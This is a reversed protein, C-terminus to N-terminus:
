VDKYFRKELEKTPIMCSKKKGYLKYRNQSILIYFYDRLKKPLFRFVRLLYWFGSLEKIIELVADSKAFYKGDKILILTDKTCMQINYKQLLKQTSEKQYPTFIFHSNPDRKIIFNIAKNCFNCVGDFIIIKKTNM